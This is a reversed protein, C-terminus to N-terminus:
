RTRCSSKSSPCRFLQRGDVYDLGFRQAADLSRRVKPDPNIGFSCGFVRYPGSTGLDRVDESKGGCTSAIAGIAGPSAGQGASGDLKAYNFQLPGVCTWNRFKSQPDDTDFLCVSLAEPFDALRESGGRWQRVQEVYQSERDAYDRASAAVSDNRAELQREHEVVAARAAEAQEAKRRDIELRAAEFAEVQRQQEALQQEYVRMKAQYEAEYDRRATAPAPVLPDAEAAPGPADTAAPPEAEATPQPEPEPQFDPKPASAPGPDSAGLPKGVFDIALGQNNWAPACEAKVGIGSAAAQRALEPWSSKREIMGADDGGVLRALFRDAKLEVISRAEAM